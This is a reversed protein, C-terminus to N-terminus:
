PIIERKVEFWGFSQWRGITWQPIKSDTVKMVKVIQKGEDLMTRKFMMTTAIRGSDEEQYPTCRDYRLMDIPFCFNGTVTLIHCYTRKM